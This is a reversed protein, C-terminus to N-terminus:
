MDEIDLVKFTAGIVDTGTHNNQTSLSFLGCPAQFVVYDSGALITHAYGQITLASYPAGEGDWPRGFRQSSEAIELVEEIQPGQASALQLLANDADLSNIDLLNGDTGAAKQKFSDLWEAIMGVSVFSDQDVLSGSADPDEATV